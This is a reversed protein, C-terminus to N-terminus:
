PGERLWCPMNYGGVVADPLANSNAAQIVTSLKIHGVTLGGKEDGAIAFNHFTALSAAPCSLERPDTQM